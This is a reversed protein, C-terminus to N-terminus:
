RMKRRWGEKIEEESPASHKFESTKEAARLYRKLAVFEEPITFGKLNGAAVKIQYLKPLLNCDPLKLRDGDLFAGPSESSDLFKDLKKLEEILHSRLVRDKDEDHNRMLASFKAFSHNLGATVASSNESCLVPEPFTKELYDEIDSAGELVEDDHRLLPATKRTTIEKFGTKDMSLKELDVFKVQLDSLGKLACIMRIRHSFPCDGCSTSVKGPICSGQLWWSISETVGQLESYFFLFSVAFVFSMLVRVKVFLELVM